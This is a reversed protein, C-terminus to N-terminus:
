VPMRSIIQQAHSMSTKPVAIGIGKLSNGHIDKKGQEYLICELEDEELRAKLSRAEDMSSTEYVQVWTEGPNRKPKFWRNPKPSSGEPSPHSIPHRWRSLWFLVGSFIFIYILLRTMRPITFYKVLRTSQLHCINPTRWKQCVSILTDFNATWDELPNLGKLPLTGM